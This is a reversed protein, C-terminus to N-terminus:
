TLKDLGKKLADAAFDVKDQHQGPVVDKAKEAV